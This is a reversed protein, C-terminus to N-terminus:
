VAKFGEAFGITMLTGLRQQQIGRIVDDDLAETKASISSSGQGADVAVAILIGDGLNLARHAAGVFQGLTRFGQPPRDLLIMKLAYGASTHQRAYAELAAQVPDSLRPRAAEAVYVHRNRLAAFIDSPVGQAWATLRASASGILLVAIAATVHWVPHRPTPRVERATKM